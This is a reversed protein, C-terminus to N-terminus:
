RFLVRFGEQLFHRNSPLVDSVRVGPDSLIDKVALTAAVRLQPESECFALLEVLVEYTTVIVSSALSQTLDLVREHTGDRPKVLAIWYFTDAFVAKM